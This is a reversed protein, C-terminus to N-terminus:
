YTITDTIEVKINLVFYHEFTEVDWESVNLMRAFSTWSAPDDVANIVVERKRHLEDLNVLSSHSGRAFAIQINWIQLDYVRDSLSEKEVGGMDGKEPFLIYTNGFENPSAMEFDVIQESPALSLAEIIDKMGTKISDYSM